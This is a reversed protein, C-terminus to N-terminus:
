RVQLLFRLYLPKSDPVPEAGDPNEPSLFEPILVQM